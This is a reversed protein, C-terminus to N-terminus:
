ARRPLWRHALEAHADAGLAEPWIALRAIDGAFHNGMGRTLRVDGITFDSVAGRNLGYPYLYPNKAYTLGQGLPPGPETYSPRPDAVGDLYATISAGDYSFAVVAWSGLPVARESAAYDRSYPLGPNPRGDASVHGCVQEAGGYTPLSTFLGYQRRPDADDEQWMGAVFGITPVSRRVLAVVTVADGRAAVDLVGVRPARIGLMDHTGDFHLAGGTDPDARWQPATGAFPELVLGHGTLDSLQPGDRFGM